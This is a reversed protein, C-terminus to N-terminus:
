YLLYNKNKLVEDIGGHGDSDVASELAAFERDNLFANVFTYVYVYMCVCVCVCVCVYISLYLAYVQIDQLHIICPTHEKRREYSRERGV